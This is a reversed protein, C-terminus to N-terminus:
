SEPKPVLVLTDVRCPERTVGTELASGSESSATWSGSARINQKQKWLGRKLNWARSDSWPPGGGACPAPGRWRRISEGM